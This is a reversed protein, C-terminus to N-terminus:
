IIFADLVVWRNSTCVRLGIVRVFGHLNVHRLIVIMEWLWTDYQRRIPPRVLTIISFMELALARFNNNPAATFSLNGILNIGHLLLVVHISITRLISIIWRWPIKSWLAILMLFRMLYASALRHYVNSGMRTRLKGRDVRVVVTWGFLILPEDHDIINIVQVEM